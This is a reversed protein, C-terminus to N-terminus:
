QYDLSNIEKSLRIRIDDYIFMVNEHKEESWDEIPIDFKPNDIRKLIDNIKSFYKKLLAPKVKIKFDNHNAELLRNGYEVVLSYDTQNICKNIALIEKIEANIKYFDDVMSGLKELEKKANNDIKLDEKLSKYNQLAENEKINDNDLYQYAHETIKNMEAEFEVAVKLKDKSFGSFLKERKNELQILKFGDRTSAILTKAGKWALSFLDKLKDIDEMPNDKDSKKDYDLIYMESFVNIKEISLKQLLGSNAGWYSKVYKKFAPDAYLSKYKDEKLLDEFTLKSNLEVELIQDMETNIISSKTKQKKSENCSVLLFLLISILITKKM